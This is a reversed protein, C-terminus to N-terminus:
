WYSNTVKKNATFIVENSDDTPVEIIMKKFIEGFRIAEAGEKKRAETVAFGREILLEFITDYELTNKTMSGFSYYVYVSCSYVIKEKM